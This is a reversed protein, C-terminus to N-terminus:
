KGVTIVDVQSFDPSCKFLMNTGMQEDKKHDYPDPSSKRPLFIWSQLHESWEGSEHTLYGLISLMIVLSFCM